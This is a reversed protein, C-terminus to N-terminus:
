EEADDGWMEICQAVQHLVAVPIDARRIAREIRKILERRVERNKDLSTVLV